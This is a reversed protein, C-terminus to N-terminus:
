EKKSFMSRAASRMKLATTAYTAAPEPIATTGRETMSIVRPARSTIMLGSGAVMALARVCNM